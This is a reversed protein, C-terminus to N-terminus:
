VPGAIIIPYIQMPTEQVSLTNFRADNLLVGVDDATRKVHKLGFARELFPGSNYRDVLGHTLLRGTPHIVERLSVLLQVAQEDTLYELLGVIKIVHPSVNPLVSRIACADGQIYEVREQLGRERACQRGFEFSEADRDILWIKVGDRARGSRVIADQLHLGPGAGVGLLQLPISEAFSNVITTLKATVLKRRNRTAMSIPNYRVAMRDMWDVPPENAYVINMSRWGGPRAISERILPSNSRQVIRKLLTAPLHNRLPDLVTKLVSQAVPLVEFQLGDV